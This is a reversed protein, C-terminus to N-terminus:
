RQCGEARGSSLGILNRGVNSPGFNFVTLAATVKQAFNATLEFGQWIDCSSHAVIKSFMAQMGSDVSFIVRHYVTVCPRVVVCTRSCQILVCIGLTHTWHLMDVCWQVCQWRLAIVICVNCSLHRVVYRGWIHGGCCIAQHWWVASFFGLVIM